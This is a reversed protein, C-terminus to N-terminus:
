AARLPVVKGGAAIGLAEGLQAAVRSTAAQLPARALHAYRATTQPQTHGLMKGVIFLSEGSSVAISAFTHRLDHIRVDNLTAAKRIRHWPQQLDAYPKDIAEGVIVFPNGRVKPLAHLVQLAEGSLTVSKAGTKSDPLELRDERVHEWKLTQIESLRCGTLILLRFAGVVHESEPGIIYRGKGDSIRRTATDLAHGLRALEEGSLYRERKQERYKKVHRCPNTGDARLGWVEALNFMKSLVGLTRNAQYPIHAFSQHLESIDARTVEGVRRRGLKRNIFLDLARQYEDQTSPKCRVMVHERMFREGLSTLTPSAALKRREAGPDVGDALAARAKLALMRAKAATISGFHGLNLKRDAGGFRYRMIFTKEGSPHVRVAFGRVDDDFLLYPQSKKLAATVTRKSLKAMAPGETEHCWRPVVQFRIPAFNMM